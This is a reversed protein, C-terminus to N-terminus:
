QRELWRTQDSGQTAQIVVEAVLATLAHLLVGEAGTPHTGEPPDSFALSKDRSRDATADAPALRTMFNPCIWPCADIWDVSRAKPPSHTRLLDPALIM